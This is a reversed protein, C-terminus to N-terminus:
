VSSENLIAGDAYWFSSLVKVGESVIIPLEMDPNKGIVPLTLGSLM